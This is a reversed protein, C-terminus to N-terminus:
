PRAQRDICLEACGSARYAHAGAPCSGTQDAAVWWTLAAREGRVADGAAGAITIDARVNIPESM